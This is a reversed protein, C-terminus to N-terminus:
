LERSGLRMSTLARAASAAGGVELVQTSGDSFVVTVPIPTSAPAIDPLPDGGLVGLGISEQYEAGGITIVANTSWLAGLGPKGGEQTFRIKEVGGQTELFAV